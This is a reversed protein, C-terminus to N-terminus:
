DADFLRKMFPPRDQASYLSALWLGLLWGALRSALYLLACDISEVRGFAKAVVALLLVLLPVPADCM